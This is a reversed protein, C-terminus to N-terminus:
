KGYRLKTRQNISTIYTRWCNRRAYNFIYRCRAKHRDYSIKNEITRSQKLTREARNRAIVAEKCEQNFWPISPKKVTNTSKPIAIEAANIISDNINQM